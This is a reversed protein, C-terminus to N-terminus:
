SVTVGDIGSENVASQILNLLIAKGEQPCTVRIVSTIGDTNEGHKNVADFDPEWDDTSTLRKVLEEQLSALRAAEFLEEDQLAKLQDLAATTFEGAIHPNNAILNAARSKQADWRVIRIRFHEGTTPHVIVGLDDSVRKWTKAGAAELRNLRQHGAILIGLQENWVIGSLDGFEELSYGLGILAENSIARPNDPDAALTEIGEEAAPEEKAAAATKKGM